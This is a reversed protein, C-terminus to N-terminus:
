NQRSFSFPFQFTASGSPPKNFRWTRALAQICADVGTDFGSVDASTVNGGPGITITVDVRGKLATNAKLADDYCKQVRGAYSSKIKQYIADADLGGDDDVIPKKLNMASRIQEEGVKVGKGGDGAGQGPGAVGPGSGSGVTGTSGGRTGGGPGGGATLGNGDRRAKDIAASLDGGPNKGDTVDNFRGSGTNGRAGLMALAGAAAAQQKAKAEDDGGGGGGGAPKSTPKSPKPSPDGGGDDKTPADSPGEAVVPPAEVPKQKAVPERRFREPVDGADDELPPDMSWLYGIAGGHLIFSLLLVAAMYPDVRDLLRGRVSQPLQPKPQLPPAIVFQFLIKVEESLVVKGRTTNSLPVVWRDAQKSAQGKDKLQALALVPGGDSLRVDAGEPLNLAYKDGNVTFLPFSKPLEASPISFTNKSSQGLTVTERTRFLREEVVNDGLVIAMRLIRERAGQQQQQQQQKGQQKAM